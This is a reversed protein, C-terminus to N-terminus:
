QLIVKVLTKYNDSRVEALYLGPSLSAAPIVIESSSGTLEFQGSYVPQHLLDYVTIVSQQPFDASVKLHIQGAAPNPFVIARIGAPSQLMEQGEKM